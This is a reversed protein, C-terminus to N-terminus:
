IIEKVLYGQIEEKLSAPSKGMMSLKLGVFDGKKLKLTVQIMKKLPLNNSFDDTSVTNLVVEQNVFFAVTIGNARAETAKYIFHYIGSKPTQFNGTFNNYGGGVNSLIKVFKLSPLQIFEIVASDIAHFYVDSSNNTSEMQKNWPLSPIKKEVLTANFIGEQKFACFVTELKHNKGIKNSDNTVSTESHIIPQILYFGNLTYGLRNLDSCNTPPGYFRNRFPNDISSDNRREGFLIHNPLIRVPRKRRLIGASSPHQATLLKEIVTEHRHITKNQFEVIERLSSIELNQKQNEDRLLGM